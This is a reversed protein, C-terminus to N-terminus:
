QKIHIIESEAASPKGYAEREAKIRAADPTYGHYLKTWRESTGNSSSFHLTVAVVHNIKPLDDPKLRRKMAVDKGDLKLWQSADKPAHRYYRHGIFLSLRGWKYLKGAHGGFGWANCSNYKEVQIEM